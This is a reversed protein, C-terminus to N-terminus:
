PMSVDWSREIYTWGGPVKTNASGEIVRFFVGLPCVAIVGLPYHISAPNPPLLIM